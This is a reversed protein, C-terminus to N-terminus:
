KLPSSAIRLHVGLSASFQLQLTLAAGQIFKFRGTPSTIWALRLGFSMLALFLLGTPEEAVPQGLQGSVVPEAHNCQQEQNNHIDRVKM